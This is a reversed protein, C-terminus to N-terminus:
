LLDTRCIWQFSQHQLQFKLVKAVQHLASENSFVRISLFISPLLLVPHVVSSSITPHCWQSSPCSNSYAGPTPSPCPPMAHQLGHTAFFWVRSPSQVSSLQISGIKLVARKGGDLNWNHSRPTLFFLSRLGLSFCAPSRCFLLGRWRVLVQTLKWRCIRIQSPVWGVDEHRGWCLEQALVHESAELHTGWNNPSHRWWILFTPKTEQDVRVSILETIPNRYTRGSGSGM